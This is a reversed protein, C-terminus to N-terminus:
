VRNTIISERPILESTIQFVVIMKITIKVQTYESLVNRKDHIADTLTQVNEFKM